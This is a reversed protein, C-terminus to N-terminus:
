FIEIRHCDTSSHVHYSKIQHLVRLSGLAQLLRRQPAALPDLFRAFCPDIVPEKTPDTETDNRFKFGPLATLSHFHYTSVREATAALAFVSLLQLRFLRRAKVMAAEDAPLEGVVGVGCM